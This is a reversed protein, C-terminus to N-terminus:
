VEELKILYKGNKETIELSKGSQLVEEEGQWESLYNIGVGSENEMEFVVKISGKRNNAFKHAVSEADTWSSIGGMSIPDGSEKYKTLTQIFRKGIEDSLAIGRYIKGGYKPHKDIFEEILQEEKPLKWDRIAMFGSRTYHSIADFM